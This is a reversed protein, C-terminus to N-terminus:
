YFVKLFLLFFVITFTNLIQAKECVYNAFVSGNEIRKIEEFTAHLMKSMIRSSLFLGPQRRVAGRPASATLTRFATWSNVSMTALLKNNCMLASVKFGLSHDMVRM